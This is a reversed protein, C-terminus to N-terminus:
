QVEEISKGILQPDTFCRLWGGLYNRFMHHIGDKRLYILYDSEDYIKSRKDTILYKKGGVFEFCIENSISLPEDTEKSKKTKKLKGNVFEDFSMTRYTMARIDTNSPKRRKKHMKAM